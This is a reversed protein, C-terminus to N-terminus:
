TSIFMATFILYGWRRAVCLLITNDLHSQFASELEIKKKFLLICM